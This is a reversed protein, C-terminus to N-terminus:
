CSSSRGRIFSWYRNRYPRWHCWTGGGGAAGGAVDLVDGLCVKLYKIVANTDIDYQFEFNINPKEITISFYNLEKIRDHIQQTMKAIIDRCEQNIKYPLNNKINICLINKIENELFYRNDKYKDISDFVSKEVEIFTENICADCRNQIAYKSSQVKEKIDLTMRMLRRELQSLLDKHTQEFEELKLCSRKKLAKLKQNQSDIIVKDFSRNLKDLLIILSDFRSFAYAKNADRFYKRLKKADKSLKISNSFDSSSCLAVQAQLTINEEYLFGLMEQFASKIIAAQKIVGETYLNARDEAEDYNGISNSVNYISCVRTWDSLYDQIRCAIKTDPRSNKKHVYFIYHAKHLAKAIIHRYKSEDGEIGPIDILTIRQGNINLEYESADKTFDAEGTGVIEGHNWTNKNSAYRLRLTEIITSKGANTEGFFGIVLHDWVIEDRVTKYEERIKNILEELHTVFERKIKKLSDHKFNLTSLQILVKNHKQLVTEFEKQIQDKIRTNAM